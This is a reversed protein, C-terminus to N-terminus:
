TQNILLKSKQNTRKVEKNWLKSITDKDAVNKAPEWSNYSEAHNKWKVLYEKSGDKATREKLIKEVSYYEKEAGDVDSNVVKLRQLPYTYAMREHLLNELIYNGKALQEIVTFPGRYRSHLKNNM